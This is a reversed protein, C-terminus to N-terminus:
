RFYCSDYFNRAALTEPDSIKSNPIAPRKLAVSQANGFSPIIVLSNSLHVM